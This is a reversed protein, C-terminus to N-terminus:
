GHTEDLHTIIFSEGQKLEGTFVTEPVSGSIRKMVKRAAMVAFITMWTRNGGFAGKQVATRWIFIGIKGV